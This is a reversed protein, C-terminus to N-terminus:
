KRVISADGDSQIQTTVLQGRTLLVLRRSTAVLSSELETATHAQLCM